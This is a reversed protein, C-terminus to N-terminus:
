APDASASRRLVTRDRLMLAAPYPYRVGPYAVRVGPAAIAAARM